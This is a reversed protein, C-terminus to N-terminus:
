FSYTKNDQITTSKKRTSIGLEKPGTPTSKAPASKGNETGALDSKKKQHWLQQV